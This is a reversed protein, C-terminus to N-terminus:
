SNLFLEIKHCEEKTPIRINELSYKIGLEKWKYVGMEHYPLVEIKKVSKLEKIFERYRFFADNKDTIEPIYVIRIWLPIEKENSLYKALKLIKENEIGYQSKINMM